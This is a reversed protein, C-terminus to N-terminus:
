GVLKMDVGPEMSVVNYTELLVPQVAVLLVLKGLQEWLPTMVGPAFIFGM